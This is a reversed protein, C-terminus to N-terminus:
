TSSAPGRGARVCRRCSAASSTEASLMVDGPDLDLTFVDRIMGYQSVADGAELIGEVSRGLRLNVPDVTVPPAENITFTVPGDATGSYSRVLFRYTQAGIPAFRLRSNTGEGGDDDSGFFNESADYVEIVTDVDDSMAEAIVTQGANLDVVFNAMGDVLTASVEDGLAVSQAADMADVFGETLSVTYAGAGDSSYATAVITYTGAHAATYRIRSNTSEGGDDDMMVSEGTPGVLRLYTDFSASTLNIEFRQGAEAEFTYGDANADRAPILADSRELTGEITDGFGIPTRSLARRPDALLSPDIADAVLSYSGRGESSFATALVTYRGAEFTRFEARSNLDGASDDDQVLVSGDPAHVILYTDFDDSRLTVAFAEGEEAVLTWADTHTNRSIEYADSDTIEGSVAEGPVLVSEVASQAFAHTSLASAVLAFSFARFSPHTM